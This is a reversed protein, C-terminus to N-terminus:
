TTPQHGTPTTSPHEGRFHALLDDQLHPPLSLCQDRMDQRAADGDGHRDCVKMAAHLLRETTAHAEVLFQILAPKNQLVMARQAVTLRGAPVVLNQHDQTLRVPIGANWLDIVIASPNM